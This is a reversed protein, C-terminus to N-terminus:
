RDRASRQLLHSGNILQTRKGSCQYYRNLLAIDSFVPGYHNGMTHQYHKDKALFMIKNTAPDVSVSTSDVSGMSKSHKCGTYHMNSGYDYHVALNSSGEPTEKAFQRDWGPRLNATLVTIFDDRDYRSHHHFLGLSHAIEHTM